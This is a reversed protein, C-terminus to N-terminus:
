NLSSSSTILNEWERMEEGSAEVKKQNVIGKVREVGPIWTNFHFQLLINCSSFYPDGTEQLKGVKKRKM